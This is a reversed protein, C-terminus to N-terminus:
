PEDLVRLVMHRLAARLRELDVGDHETLHTFHEAALPALLLHALVPADDGPRAEAVLMTAHQHWAAYAGADYRAGARSAESDRLLDGYRELLDVLADVLAVVRDAPPAGPGLPPDGRLIREQLAREEDDVLAMVLGARDGFRHFVTGKGVGAARAIEDITVNAVGRQDFLERAAALVKERNRAADARGPPPAGLVPLEAGPAANRASGRKPQRAV